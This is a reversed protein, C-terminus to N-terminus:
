KPPALAKERRAVNELETKALEAEPSSGASEIIQNFAEKASTFDDM